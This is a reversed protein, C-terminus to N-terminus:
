PQSQKRGRRQFPNVIAAGPLEIRNASELDELLSVLEKNLQQYTGPDASRTPFDLKDYHQAYEAHVHRPNLASSRGLEFVVRTHLADLEKRRGGDEAVRGQLDLIRQALSRLNKSRQAEYLQYTRYDALAERWRGLAYYMNGRNKLLVFRNSLELENALAYAQDYHALAEEHRGSKESRLGAQTLSKV